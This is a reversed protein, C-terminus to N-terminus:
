ATMQHLVSVKDSIERVQGVAGLHELFSRLSPYPPLTRVTKRGFANHFAGLLLKASCFQGDDIGLGCCLRLCFSVYHEDVFSIHTDSM